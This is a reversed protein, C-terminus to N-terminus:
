KTPLKRQKRDRKMEALAGKIEDQSLASAALRRIERMESRDLVFAIGTKGHLYSDARQLWKGALKSVAQSTQKRASKRPAM